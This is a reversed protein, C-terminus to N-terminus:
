EVSSQLPETSRRCLGLFQVPLFCKTRGSIFLLVNDIEDGFFATILQITGEWKIVCISLNFKAFGQSTICLLSILLVTKAVPLLLGIAPTYCTDSRFAGHPSFEKCSFQLGWDEKQVKKGIKRNIRSKLIMNVDWEIGHLLKVQYLWSLYDM